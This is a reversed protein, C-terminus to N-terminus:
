GLVTREFVWFAGVGAIGLSAPIQVAARYWTQRVAWTGLLLALPAIVLLQGLEVGVNFSILSVWFAGDELGFESLVSAFGLGHLLGFAFVLALRRGLATRGSRLTNEVGVYVISAAILPEVISPSLTVIALSALALTVTHAVTFVSIQAILAGRGAGFFFLGAVFLIHDLGMPVIHAIGSLVYKKIVEVSTMAAQEAQLAESTDGALLFANYDSGEVRVVLAGYERAWSLTASEVPPAALTVTTFRPLELDPQSEVETGELTLRQRVGSATLSVGEIWAPQTTLRAALAADDLARLAALRDGATGTVLDTDDFETADVGALIVEASLRLQIRTADADFSLTAIGPQMTHAAAPMALMLLLAKCLVLLPRIM